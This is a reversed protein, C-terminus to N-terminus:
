IAAKITSPLFSQRTAKGEHAKTVDKLSGASGSYNMQEYSHIKGMKIDATNGIGRKTIEM